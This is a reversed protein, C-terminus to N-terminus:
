VFSTREICCDCLPLGGCKEVMDRALREMEPVMERVDLLKRCFLDWSDEQSLFHLKHVFDRDDTREAVDENRTTIIVRSGNKGDPFARKLIEWAERQWVDDVVVLYKCEKLLDRLYIELDRKTMRELLDLTEKTCGEISKIINRLLDM